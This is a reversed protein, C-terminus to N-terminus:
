RTREMITIIADLRGLQHRLDGFLRDREVAAALEAAARDLDAQVPDPQPVEPPTTSAPATFAAPPPAAPEIAVRAPEALMGMTLVATILYLKM